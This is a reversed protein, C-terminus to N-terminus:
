RLVIAIVVAASSIIVSILSIIVTRHMYILNKQLAEHQMDLNARAYKQMNEAHAREDPTMTEELNGRLPGEVVTQKGLLPKPIFQKEM